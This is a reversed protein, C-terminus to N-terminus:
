LVPPAVVLDHGCLLGLVFLELVYETWARTDFLVDYTEVTLGPPGRVVLREVM